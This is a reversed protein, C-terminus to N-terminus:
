FVSELRSAGLRIPRATLLLLSQDADIKRVPMGSLADLMGKEGRVFVAVGKKRADMAWITEVGLRRLAVELEDNPGLGIVLWGTPTKGIAMGPKEPLWAVDAGQVANLAGRGDLGLLPWRGLVLGRQESLAVTPRGAELRGVITGDVLQGREALWRGMAVAMLLGESEIQSGSGLHPALSPPVDGPLLRPEVRSLDVAFLRCRGETRKQVVPLFAPQPQELDWSSWGDLGTKKLTLYFFDKLSGEVYTKPYYSMEHLALSARYEPPEQSSNSVPEEFRYYAFATHFPNMDLHMGFDCGAVNMTAGLTQATLDDGWIYFLAGEDNMCLGSRITNMYTLSTHPTRGWKDRRKPNFVGGDVLPDLNQRYSIMTEPIPQGAPWPGMKVSGDEMTAVTAADQVPPLLIKRQEMMGYAGHETKFAGNFAAVVRPLTERDRPLRGTGRTGTTPRPDALGGVMHLDMQRMDMAILYARVYPRDKDVRLYTKYFAPPAGKLSKVWSPVCPEWRGEDGDNHEFAPSVLSRPPWNANGTAAFVGAELESQTPVVRVGSRRTEFMESEGFVSYSWRRLRDRVEFFRGEAWEIPKPGVFYLSRVTDIFWLLPKKPTEVDASVILGPLGVYSASPTDVQAAELEGSRSKWRILLPDSSRRGAFSLEVKEPPREFSITTRGVGEPQGTELWDTIGALTREVVGWSSGKAARAGEFDFVTITRVQGFVKTAVAVRRGGAALAYEDGDPTKTLNVISRVGVIIAGPAIRLEASYVDRPGWAGDSALFSVKQWGIATDLGYEGERGGIPVLSGRVVNVGSSAGLQHELLTSDRRTPPVQTHAAAALGLLACTFFTLLRSSVLRRLRMYIVPRGLHAWVGVRASPLVTNM